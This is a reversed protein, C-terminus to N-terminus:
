INKIACGNEIKKISLLRKHDYVLRFIEPSGDWKGNFVDQNNFKLVVDDSISFDCKGMLFMTISTKHSFIVVKKGLCNILIKDIGSNFRSYVEKRSEGGQLKFDEDLFQKMRFKVLPINEPISGRVREGFEQRIYIDCNQYESLPIATCITRAYQSCFIYDVDGFCPLHALTEAQRLGESSLLRKEDIEKADANGSWVVSSNKHAHRVLFIQTNDM